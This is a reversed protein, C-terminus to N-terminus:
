TLTTRHPPSPPVPALRRHLQREDEGEDHHQQQGDDLEAEEHAVLDQDDVRGPLRYPLRGDVGGGVRGPLAASALEVSASDRSM